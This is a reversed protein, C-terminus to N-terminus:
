TSQIVPTVVIVLVVLIVSTVPNVSTFMKNEM